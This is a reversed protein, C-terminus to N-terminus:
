PLVCLQWCVGMAKLAPRSRDLRAQARWLELELEMKADNWSLMAFIFEWIGRM